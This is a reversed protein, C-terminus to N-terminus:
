TCGSFLVSIPPAGIFHYLNLLLSMIPKCLYTNSVKLNILNCVNTEMNKPPFPSSFDCHLTLCRCYYVGIIYELILHVNVCDSCLQFNSHDRSCARPCSKENWNAETNGVKNMLQMYTMRHFDRQNSFNAIKLQSYAVLSLNNKFVFPIGKLFSKKKQM